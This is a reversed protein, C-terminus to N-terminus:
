PEVIITLRNSEFRGRPMAELLQQAQPDMQKVAGKWEDPVVGTADYVAILTYTGPRQPIWGNMSIGSTGFGFPNTEEWPELTEFDLVKIPNMFGCRPGRGKALKQAEGKEDRVELSYRPYRMQEESGDLSPLIQVTTPSINRLAFHIPLPEGVKGKDKLRRAVFELTPFRGLVQELRRRLEGGNASAARKRILPLVGSGLAVLQNAVNERAEATETELRGLLREARAADDVSLKPELVPEIHREPEYRALESVQEGLKQQDGEHLRQWFEM